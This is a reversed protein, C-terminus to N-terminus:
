GEGCRVNGRDAAQYSDRHAPKLVAFRLMALMASSGGLRDGHSRPRDATAETPADRVSQEVHAPRLNRGGRQPDGPCLRPCWRFRGEDGRVEIMAESRRLPAPLWPPNHRAYIPTGSPDIGREALSEMSEAAKQHFRADNAGGALRIVAM